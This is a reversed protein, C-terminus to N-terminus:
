FSSNAIANKKKKKSIISVVSYNLGKKLHEHLRYLMLAVNTMQASFVMM